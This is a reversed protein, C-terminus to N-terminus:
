HKSAITYKFTNGAGNEVADAIPDILFLHNGVGLGQVKAGIAFMQGPNLEVVSSDIDHGQLDITLRSTDLKLVWNRCRQPSGMKM